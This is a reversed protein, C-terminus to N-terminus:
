SDRWANVARTLQTYGCRMFAFNEEHSESLRPVRENSKSQEEERQHPASNSQHDTPGADAGERWFEVEKTDDGTTAPFDWTAGEVRSVFETDWKRDQSLRHVTRVAVAGELSLVM